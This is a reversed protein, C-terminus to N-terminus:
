QKDTNTNVLSMDEFECIRLKPVIKERMDYNERIAALVGCFEQETLITKYPNTEGRSHYLTMGRTDMLAMRFRENQEFMCQYAARVLKIFDESQRDIANGKWWVIQDCQWANTTMKKANKGKMSCIRRQKNIDKQKLSQLFGEMSGCLMGDFKFSNSCLNSLVNSPYPDKSWIDIAKGRFVQWKIKLRRFIKM